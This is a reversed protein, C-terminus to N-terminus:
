HHGAEVGELDELDHTASGRLQADDRLRWLWVASGLLVTAFVLVYTGPLIETWMGGPHLSLLGAQPTDGATFVIWGGLLACLLWM